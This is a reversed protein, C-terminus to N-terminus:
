PRECTLPGPLETPNASRRPWNPRRPRASLDFRDRGDAFEAFECDPAWTEEVADAVVPTVEPLAGATSATDAFFVAVPVVDGFGIAVVSDFTEDATLVGTVAFTTVAVGTRRGTNQSDEDTDDVIDQVGGVAFRGCSRRIRQIDEPHLSAAARRSIVPAATGRTDVLGIVTLGVSVKLSPIM